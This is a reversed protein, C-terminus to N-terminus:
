RTPWDEGVGIVIRPHTELWTRQAPTLPDPEADAVAVRTVVFLTLWLALLWLRRSAHRREEPTSDDLPGPM